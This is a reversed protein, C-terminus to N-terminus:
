QDIYRTTENNGQAHVLKRSLRARRVFSVLETPHTLFRRGQAAYGRLRASFTWGLLKTLTKMNVRAHLGIETDAWETQVRASEIPDFLWPTRERVREKTFEEMVVELAKPYRLYFPDNKYDDPKFQDFHETCFVKAGSWAGYLIHSGMTNTTLYEFSAFLRRIRLLAYRDRRGAGRVWRIGAKDFAKTWFGREVCIPHVCALIHEFKDRMSLLEDIYASENWSQTALEQTHGPMVLLSNPLQKVAPRDVYILPLGVPEVKTFDHARLIEVHGSNAVLNRMKRHGLAYFEPNDPAVFPIWGHRWTAFSVPTRKLGLQAAITHSAGYYDPESRLWITEERPLKALLEDLPHQNTM